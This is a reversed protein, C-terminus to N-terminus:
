RSEAAAVESLVSRLREGVDRALERLASKEVNDFVAEPDMAEITTRADDPGRRVVVNCPLLVGVSPDLAIARDALPPNCAGLIRFDGVEYGAALAIREPEDLLALQGTGTLDDWAERSATYPDVQAANVAHVLIAGPRADADSGALWETVRRGSDIVRARFYVAASATQIDQELDAALAARYASATVSDQWEDVLGEGLLATLVGLVIVVFGQLAKKM